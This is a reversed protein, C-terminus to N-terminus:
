SFTDHRKPDAMLTSTEYLYFFIAEHRFVPNKGPGLTANSTVDRASLDNEFINKPKYFRRLIDSPNLPDLLMVNHKFHCYFITELDTYNLDITKNECPVCVPAASYEIGKKV